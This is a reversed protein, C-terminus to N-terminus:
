QIANLANRLQNFFYATIISGSQVNSPLGGSGSIEGIASRAQNVTSAYIQSGSSVNSFSYNGMGKYQRFANIRSCFSNWENASIRIQNGSSVNSNWSWNNPRPISVSQTRISQTLTVSGGTYTIEARVAYTTDANLGTFQYNAASSVGNPITQTAKLSDNLYWKCIRLANGYSTDLGSVNCWFSTEAVTDYAIYAM